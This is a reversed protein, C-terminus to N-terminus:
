RSALTLRELDIPAQPLFSLRIPTGDRDTWTRLLSVDSVNEVLDTERFSHVFGIMVSATRRSDGRREGIFRAERELRVRWRIVSPADPLPAMMVTPVAAIRLGTRWYAAAAAAEPSLLAVMAQDMPVGFVNIDAGGWPLIESAERLSELLDLALSSFSVLAAPQASPDCMAVVWHSGFVRRAQESPVPEAHEVPSAAHIARDCPRLAYPDVPVGRDRSMGDRLSPGFHRVIEQAVFRADSEAIEGPPSVISDPLTFRGDPQLAAAADGTVMSSDLHPVSPATAQRCSAVLIM